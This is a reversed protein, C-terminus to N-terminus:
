RQLLVQDAIVWNYLLGENCFVVKLNDVCSVDFSFTVSNSSDNLKDTTFILSDGDYFELWASGHYCLSHAYIQGTITSYERGLEYRVWSDHTFSVYCNEHVYGCKDNATAVYRMDSIISHSYEKLDFLNIEPSNKDYGGTSEIQEIAVIESIEEVNPIIEEYSFGCRRCTYTNVGEKESSPAQYHSLYFQHDCQDKDQQVKGCSLLGFILFSVIAILIYRRM